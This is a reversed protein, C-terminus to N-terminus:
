RAWSQPTALGLVVPNGAGRWLLKDVLDLVTFKARLTGYRKQIQTQFKSATSCAEDRLENSSRSWVLRYFDLVGRYGSGSKDDAISRRAFHESERVKADVECEFAFYRWM